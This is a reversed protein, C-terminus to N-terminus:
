GVTMSMFLWIKFLYDLWRTVSATLLFSISLILLFPLGFFLLWSSVQPHYQSLFYQCCYIFFYLLFLNLSLGSVSLLLGSFYFICTQRYLHFHPILLHFISNFRSYLLLYLSYCYQVFLINLLDKQTYMYIYLIYIICTVNNQPFSWM